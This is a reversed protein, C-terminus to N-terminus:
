ERASPASCIGIGNRYCYRCLSKIQLYENRIKTLNGAIIIRNDNIEEAENGSIRILGELLHLGTGEVHHGRLRRDYEQRMRRQIFETAPVAYNFM